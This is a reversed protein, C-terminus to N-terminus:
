AGLGGVEHQVGQCAASGTGARRERCREAAAGLQAADISSEEEVIEEVAVEEVGHAMKGVAPPTMDGLEHSVPHGGM